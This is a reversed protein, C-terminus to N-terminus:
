HGAGHGRGLALEQRLVDKSGRQIKKRGTQLLSETDEDQFDEMEEENDAEMELPELKTSVNPTEQDDDDDLSVNEVLDPENDSMM